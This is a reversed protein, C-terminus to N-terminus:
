GDLQAHSITQKQKSVNMQNNKNKIGIVNGYYQEKTHLLTKKIHTLLFYFKSHPNSHTSQVLIFTM